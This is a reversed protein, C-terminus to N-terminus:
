GKIYTYLGYLQDNQGVSIYSAGEYPNSVNIIQQDFYVKFVNDSFSYGSFRGNYSIYGSTKNESYVEDALPYKAMTVDKQDADIETLSTLYKIANDDNENASIYPYEVLEYIYVNSESRCAVNLSFNNPYNDEIAVANIVEVEELTFGADEIEGEVIEILKNHFNVNLLNDPLTSSNSSNNPPITEHPNIFCFNNFLIIIIVMLGNIIIILMLQNTYDEIQDNNGFYYKNKNKKIFALDKFFKISSKIPSVTSTRDDQWIVGLEYMSLKNLKAIYLYEVDFAFNTVLQKSVIRKAVATRVAKFGCQTDKLKLHFMMNVILRCCWGIFVRLLPQKKKIVSDKAHRSGVILDYNPALEIVKEIASLDTSLDADMFLVYDGTANEIGYKVAGGKGRNIDYSLAKIDPISAIVEKTNDKSGDNM